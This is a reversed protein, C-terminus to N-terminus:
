KINEGLLYKYIYWGLATFKINDEDSLDDLKNKFNHNIYFQTAQLLQEDSLSDINQGLATFFDALIQTSM